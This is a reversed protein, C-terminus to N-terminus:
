PKEKDVPTMKEVLIARSGTSTTKYLKGEVHVRKGLHTAVDLNHNLPDRVITFADGRTTLIALPGGDKVCAEACSRHGPGREGEILFCSLSIIEGTQTTQEPKIKPGTSSEARSDTKQAKKSQATAPDGAVGLVIGMAILFVAAHNRRM